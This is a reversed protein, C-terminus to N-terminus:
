NKVVEGICKKTNLPTEQGKRFLITKNAEQKPKCKALMRKEEDNKKKKTNAKKKKAKISKHKLSQSNPKTAKNKNKTLNMARNDHNPLEGTPLPNQHTTM